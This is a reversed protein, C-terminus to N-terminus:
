KKPCASFECNPGSRSVFSGDPCALAEMSCATAGPNGPITSTSQASGGNNGDTTNSVKIEPCQTFECNPGSRGVSSGDPCIKAEMTCAIPGGTILNNETRYVSVIIAGILVGLIFVVVSILYVTKTKM